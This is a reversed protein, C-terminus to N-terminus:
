PAETKIQNIQNTTLYLVILLSGKTDLIIRIWSQFDIYSRRSVNMLVGPM